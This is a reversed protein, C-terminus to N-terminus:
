ITIVGFSEGIDIINGQLKVDSLNLVITKGM